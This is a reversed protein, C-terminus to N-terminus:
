AHCGAQQTWGIQVFAGLSQPDKTDTDSGSLFDLEVIADRPLLTVGAKTCELDVRAVARPM